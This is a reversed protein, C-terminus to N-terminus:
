REFGEGNAVRDNQAASQNVHQWVFGAEGGNERVLKTVDHEPMAHVRLVREEAAQAEVFAFGEAVEAKCARGFLFEGGVLLAEFEQALRGILILGRGGPEEKLRELAALLFNRVEDTRM